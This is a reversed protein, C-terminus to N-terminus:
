LYHGHKDPPAPVITDVDINTVPHGEHYLKVLARSLHNTLQEEAWDVKSEMEVCKLHLLEHVISNDYDLAEGEPWDREIPPIDEPVRMALTATKQNRSYKIKCVAGDLADHSWFVVKIDWDQLRLLEQWYKLQKELLEVFASHEM